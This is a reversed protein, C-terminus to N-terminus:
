ASHIAIATAVFFVAQVAAAAGFTLYTAVREWRHLLAGLLLGGLLMLAATQPLEFIASRQVVEPLPPLETPPFHLEITEPLSNYRVAVQLWVLAGLAVAIGALGLATGDERLALASLGSRRVHHTLDATPGLEQRRM